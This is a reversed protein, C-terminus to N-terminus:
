YGEKEDKEQELMSGGNMVTAKFIKNICFFHSFKPMKEHPSVWGLETPSNEENMFDIAM